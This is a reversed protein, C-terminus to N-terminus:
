HVTGAAPPDPETPLPGAQHHVLKWSGEERVFINTAILRDEALRETCIVFATDDQVYARAGLCAITPPAPGEIIGQWSELVSERGYLPAWGPHICAVPAKASWLADMKALDGTDFARYFAENAALVADEDGPM